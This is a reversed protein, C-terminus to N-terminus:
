DRDSRHGPERPLDLLMSGMKREAERRTIGLELLPAESRAHYNQLSAELGELMAYQHYTSSLDKQGLVSERLASVKALQQEEVLRPEIANDNPDNVM